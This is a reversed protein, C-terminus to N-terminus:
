HLISYLAAVAAIIAAIAAIITWRLIQQHRLHEIETRRQAQRRQLEFLAGPIDFRDPHSLVFEDLQEVSMNRFDPPKM